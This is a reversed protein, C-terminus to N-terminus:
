GGKCDCLNLLVGEGSGGRGSTKFLADGIREGVNDSEARLESIGVDNSRSRCLSGTM